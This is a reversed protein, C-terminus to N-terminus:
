MNYWIGVLKVKLTLTALAENPSRFQSKSIIEYQEESVIRSQLGARLLWRRMHIHLILALYFVM